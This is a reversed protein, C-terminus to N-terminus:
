RWCANSRHVASAAAATAAAAAQRPQRMVPSSAPVAPAPAPARDQLPQQQTRQAARERRRADDLLLQQQRLGDLAMRRQTRAAELCDNVLFQTQCATRAEVDRAEIARREIVLREREDPAAAAGAQGLALMMALAAPLRGAYLRLAGGEHQASRCAGEPHGKHRM